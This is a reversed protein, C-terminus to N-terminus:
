VVSATGIKGRRETIIKSLQPNTSTPCARAGELANGTATLLRFSRIPQRQSLPFHRQQKVKCLAFQVFLVVVRDYFVTGSDKVNIRTLVVALDV